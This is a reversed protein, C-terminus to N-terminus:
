PILILCIDLLFCILVSGVEGQETRNWLLADEIEAVTILEQGQDDLAEHADVGFHEKLCNATLVEERDTHEDKCRAHNNEMADFTRFIEASSKVTARSFFVGAGAVIPNNYVQEHRLVHGFYHHDDPSWGKTRIYHKVNDPFLYSDADIKVFWEATDVDGSSDM